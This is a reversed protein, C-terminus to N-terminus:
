RWGCALFRNHSESVSKEANNSKERDNNSKQVVEIVETEKPIEKGSV